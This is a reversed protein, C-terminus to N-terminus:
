DTMALPHKRAMSMMKMFDMTSIVLLRHRIKSMSVKKEMNTGVYTTM